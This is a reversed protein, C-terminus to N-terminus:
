FLLAIMSEEGNVHLRCSLSCAVYKNACIFLEVLWPEFTVMWVFMLFSCTAGYRFVNARARIRRAFEDVTNIMEQSAQSHAVLLASSRSLQWVEGQM